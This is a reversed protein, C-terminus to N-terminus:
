ALGGARREGIGMLSRARRPAGHLNLLRYDHLGPKLRRVGVWDSSAPGGGSRLPYSGNGAPGEIFGPRGLHWVPGGAFIGNLSSCLADVGDFWVLPKGRDGVVEM